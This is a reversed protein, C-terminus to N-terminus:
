CMFVKPMLHPELITAKNSCLFMQYHTTKTDVIKGKLVVNNQAFVLTTFSTLLIIISIKQLM